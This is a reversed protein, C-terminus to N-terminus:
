EDRAFQGILYENGAPTLQYVAVENFSEQVTTTHTDEPEFPLSITEQRAGDVMVPLAETNSSDFTDGGIHEILVTGDDPRFSFELSATRKDERNQQTILCGSTASALVLVSSLLTRRTFDM